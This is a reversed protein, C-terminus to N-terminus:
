LNVITDAASAQGWARRRAARVGVRRERWTEMEIEAEHGKRGLFVCGVVMRVSSVSLPELTRPTHTCVLRYICKYIPTQLKSSLGPCCVDPVM